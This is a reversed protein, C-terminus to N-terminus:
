VSFSIVNYENIYGSADKLSGIGYMGHKYQDDEAEVVLHGNVYLKLSTNKIVMKLLYTQGLEWAFSVSALQTLGFDNKMISVTHQETLGLWYYREIGLARAILGHSEGTLPTFATEVEYNKAYYNGTYASGNQEIEYHLENQELRWKGRQQAMPTVSLFETAQKSWDITYQGDGVIHFQGVYLAGFSRSTPTSNPSDIIFGVEDAFSGNLQPVTFSLTNWVKNNLEMADLLVDQKTYTDHVYPTIRLSAGEWQELYLKFQVTQGSYCQPAFTPKYKEDNFEDRRYFPKYFIKSHEMNTIRDFIIELSGDSEGYSVYKSHRIVPTKFPNSTKFGHTSGPLDFDFYIEGFKVSNMLKQTPQEQHLRYALLVLEKSFTPFDVINLYGSVSSAVICDNVPTRYHPPIHELGCMVGMITGVNGANCDTDWGCMTAIEITRAFDGKGYLLALICVGANPIIHCVGGYKDYGWEKELFRRCARFVQPESEYFAMVARVVQAYLSNAPIMTLAAEIIDVVDNSEFAKAICAAMFRAGYIGNGDHSVSAAREAYLAAKEINGPWLLGWTDIFIQGGIQEAMLEGNVEISGSKPAEIGKRLNMYATHETSVGIGGWWFIGVGERAYNLWAKAVDQATLERDIADDYLARMFFIPGNADDDASFTRYPKVYDKIDGYVQEIREFTWVEPEVPAGLRIGINMGLFGAYVRELYNDPLM